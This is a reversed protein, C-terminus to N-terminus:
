QAQEYDASEKLMDEMLDEALGSIYAAMCM